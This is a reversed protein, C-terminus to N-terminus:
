RATDRVFRPFPQSVRTNSSGRLGLRRDCKMWTCILSLHARASALSSTCSKFSIFLRWHYHRIFASRHSGLVFESGFGDYGSTNSKVDGELWNNIASKVIKPWLSQSKSWGLIEFARCRFFFFLHSKETPDQIVARNNSIWASSSSAPTKWSCWSECLKVCEQRIAAWDSHPLNLGRSWCLVATTILSHFYHKVKGLRLGLLGFDM